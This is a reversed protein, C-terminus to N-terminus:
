GQSRIVWLVLVIHLVCESPFFLFLFLYVIMFFVFFFISGLFSITDCGFCPVQASLRSVVPRCQLRLCHSGSVSCYPSPTNSPFSPIIFSRYPFPPLLIYRHYTLYLFLRLVLTSLLSHVLSSSLIHAELGFGTGRLWRSLDDVVCFTLSWLDGRGGGEM